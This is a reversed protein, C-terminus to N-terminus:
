IQQGDITILTEWIRPTKTKVDKNDADGGNVGGREM